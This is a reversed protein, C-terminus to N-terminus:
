LFSCFVCTRMGSSLRYIFGNSMRLIQPRALNDENNFGISSSPEGFDAHTPYRRIKPCAGFVETSAWDPVAHSFDFSGVHCADERNLPWALERHARALLM